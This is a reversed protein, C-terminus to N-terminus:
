PHMDRPKKRSDDGIHPSTSGPAGASSQGASALRRAVELDVLADFEDLYARVDPEDLAQQVRRTAGAVRVNSSPPELPADGDAQGRQRLVDRAARWAAHPLGRLGGLVAAVSQAFVVPNTEQLATDFARRLVQSQFLLVSRDADGHFWNKDVYRNITHGLLYTSVLRQSLGRIGRIVRVLKRVPYLLLDIPLMLLIGLLGALCGDGAFLPKVRSIPYRRGAQRLITRVLQRILQQPILDDVVPVPVFGAAAVLVAFFVLVGRSVPGIGETGTFQRHAPTPAQADSDSEPPPHSHESM